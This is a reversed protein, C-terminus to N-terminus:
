TPKPKLSDALKQMEKEFDYDQHDTWLTAIIVIEINNIRIIGYTDSSYDNYNDLQYIPIFINNFIEENLLGADAINIFVKLTFPSNM